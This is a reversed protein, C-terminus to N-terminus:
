KFIRALLSGKGKTFANGDSYELSILEGDISLEGSDLNLKNIHLDEGKIILMGMDTDAIVSEEDFSLVDVVGTISIANRNEMIMRHKASNLSKKEEAM